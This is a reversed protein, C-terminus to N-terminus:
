NKRKQLPNFNLDAFIAWTTASLTPREPTCQFPSPLCQSYPPLSDGDQLTAGTLSIGDGFPALLQAQGVQSLFLDAQPGFQAGGNATGVARLALIMQGTVDWATGITDGPQPSVLSFGGFTRGGASPAQEFHALAYQMTLNLNIKSPFADFLALTAFTSSDASDCNNIIEAGLQTALDPCIGPGQITEASIDITGAYFRGTKTDWMGAVFTAASTASQLWAASSSSNGLATQISAMRSFAAYIQANYATSKGRILQKPMGGDTYGVFYGGYGGSSALNATIWRGIATADTLYKPDGWYTYAELFALMAWANDGGTAGDLVLCFKSTGCLNEGSSFGALRVDGAQGLAPASQPNLFGIDGNLYASHLGCQSAPDGNYCGAANQPSTPISDGHNDHNLAYDLANVIELANALDGTQRRQLLAIVVRAADATIALSQNAQDSPIPLRQRALSGFTQTAVPLSLAKPDSRQRSPVPTYQVNDLLINGGHPAHDVNTVVTFLLHTDSLDPPCVNATGPPAQLRTLPLTITKWVPGIALFDSVCNGVGFQVTVSDPSRVDFTVATAPSLNYGNGVNKMPDYGEPDQFSLGVFEGANRLQPILLHFV